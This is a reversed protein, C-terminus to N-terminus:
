YGVKAFLPARNIKPRSKARVVIESIREKPAKEHCFWAHAGAFVLDDHKGEEHELRGDKNAFTKCEDLLLPIFIDLESKGRCGKDKDWVGCVADVFKDIFIRRSQTVVRAGLNRTIREHGGAFSFEPLLRGIPYVRQLNAIVGAGAANNEVNGFGCGYYYGLAALDNACEVSDLRSRYICVISPRNKDGICKINGSNIFHHDLVKQSLGRRIVVATTYDTEKDTIERGEAIDSGWCYEFGLIYPEAMILAGGSMERFKYESNVIEVDGIRLPVINEYQRKLGDMPFVLKNVSIFAEDPTAPYEQKFLDVDGKCDALGIMRRWYLQEEKAGLDDALYRETNDLKGDWKSYGRRVGDDLGLWCDSDELWGIFFPRMGNRGIGGSELVGSM